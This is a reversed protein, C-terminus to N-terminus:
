DRKMVEMKFTSAPLGESNILNGTAWPQWNYYIFKPKESTKIFVKNGKLKAAAETKGNLSFGRLSKSNSVSLGNGIYEFDVIISDNKYIASKPLPGSVLVDQGYEQNLAWRALRNGVAKKNRPHVDHRAGIDSSVAMGVNKMEELLRRQGDRFEPWFHSDYNITDISSLQVWYFPLNPNEWKKRYDQIMLKQLEPYEEVREKEQANSEGQYWLIGKIPMKLIPAIGTSFAFGPKYGHNPGNSHNEVQNGNINERGRERIWDPLHANYLWNSGTKKSFKKNKKLTELAIFTELPAGGISLNILGVPIGKKNSIQKGFYYGIASMAKFTSTDSEEWKKDYFLEGGAFKKREDQNYAKGYINKGIYKPNYFRLQKNNADKLEEEFHMEGSMPWEMNSQGLLLWVDGILLNHLTITQQPSKLILEQPNSNAPQEDFVVEWNGKVDTVVSEVKNQFYISIKSQPPAIGWIRIPQDRQLVMNDTFIDAFTIQSHMPRFALLLVFTLLLCRM